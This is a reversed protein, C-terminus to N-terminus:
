KEQFPNKTLVMRTMWWRKIENDNFNNNNNPDNFDFTDSSFAGSGIVGRGAMATLADDNARFNVLYDVAGDRGMSMLNNIEDATGGVGMRRVLHATEEYTIAAM